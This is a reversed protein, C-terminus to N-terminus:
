YGVTPFILGKGLVSFQEDSETAGSSPSRAYSMEALLSDNFFSIFRIFFLLYIIIHSGM